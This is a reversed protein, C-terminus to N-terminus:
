AINCTELPPSWISPETDQSSGAPNPHSFPYPSPHVRWLDCHQNTVLQSRLQQSIVCANGALFNVKKAQKNLGSNLIHRKISVSIYFSHGMCTTYTPLVPCMEGASVGGLASLPETHGLSGHVQSVVCLSSKEKFRLHNEGVGSRWTPQQSVGWRRMAAKNARRHTLRPANIQM